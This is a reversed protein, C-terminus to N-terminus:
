IKICVPIISWGGDKIYKQARKLMEDTRVFYYKDGDFESLKALTNKM